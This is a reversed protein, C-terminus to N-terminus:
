KGGKQERRCVVITNTEQPTLEAKGALTEVFLVISPPSLNGWGWM